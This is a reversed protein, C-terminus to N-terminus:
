TKEATNARQQICYDTTPPLSRANRRALFNSINPLAYVRPVIALRCRLRSMYLLRVGGWFFFQKIKHYKKKSKTRALRETIIYNHM